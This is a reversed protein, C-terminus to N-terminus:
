DDQVIIVDQCLEFSENWNFSDPKYAAARLWSDEWKLCFQLAAKGDKMTVISEPYEFNLNFSKSSGPSFREVAGDDKPPPPHLDFLEEDSVPNRYIFGITRSLEDFPLIKDEDSVNSFTVSYLKAGLDYALSDPHIQSLKFEGSGSLTIKMGNVIIEAM